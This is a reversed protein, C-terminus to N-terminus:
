FNQCFIFSALFASSFKTCRVVIIMYNFQLSDLSPFSNFELFDHSPIPNLQIPYSVSSKGQRSHLQSSTVKDKEIRQMGDKMEGYRMSKSKARWMQMAHLVQRIDSGVQRL